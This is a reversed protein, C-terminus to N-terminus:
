GKRRAAKKGAARTPNKVAPIAEELVSQGAAFFEDIHDYSDFIDQPEEDLDLAIKICTAYFRMPTEKAVEELRTMPYGADELRMLISRKIKVDKEEGKYKIKAM